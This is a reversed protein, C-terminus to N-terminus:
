TIVIQKKTQEILDLHCKRFKELTPMWSTVCFGKLLQPSLKEGAFRVTDRINGSYICNSATPIQEYGGKELKLYTKVMNWNWRPVRGLLAPAFTKGYSWNSQLVTKPMKLFFEEQNMHRITDGWMWTRVNKKEIEDIYFYLDKWWLEHQRVVAYDNFKHNEYAEEDMGIHFFRPAEFIDIVESILEKVVNYYLKTSVMRSYEGLWTDHSTSFNLKPIPELGAKKLRQIETKLRQVSWAGQIAIEPHSTYQVADGLDLIVMNLGANQMAPILDNWLSDDFRLYPQAPLIDRYPHTEEKSLIRDAWM